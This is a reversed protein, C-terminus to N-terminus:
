EHYKNFERYDGSPILKANRPEEKMFYAWAEVEKEDDMIITIVKREYWSPHGELADARSLSHKDVEYVEGMVYTAGGNEMMFPFSIASLKYNNKTSGTGMFIAGKLLVNNGYGSMLTGYVFLYPTKEISEKM